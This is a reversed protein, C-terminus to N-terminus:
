EEDIKRKEQAIEHLLEEIRGSAEPGEDYFFKLSPAFRLVVARAVDTRLKKSAADLGRLLSKRKGLDDGGTQLRVYVKASQLDDTVEVRSVLVGQLRPDDFGRLVNVLEEQMRTAVRASRKVPGSM